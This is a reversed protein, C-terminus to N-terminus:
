CAPNKKKSPLPHTCQTFGALAAAFTLNCSHNDNETKQKSQKTKKKSFTWIWIKELKQILQLYESLKTTIIEKIHWGVPLKDNLQCVTFPYTIDNNSKEPWPWYPRINEGNKVRNYDPYRKWAGNVITLPM